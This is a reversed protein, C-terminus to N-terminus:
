RSSEWILILFTIPLVFLLLFYLKLRLWSVSRIFELALSSWDVLPSNSSLVLALVPVSERCYLLPPVLGLVELSLSIVLVDLSHDILHDLFLTAARVLMKNWLIYWFFLLFVNSLFTESISSIALLLTFPRIKFRTNRSFLARLNESSHVNKVGSVRESTKLSCQENEISCSSNYCYLSWTYNQM